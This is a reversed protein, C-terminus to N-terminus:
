RLEPECDRFLELLPSWGHVAAVEKGREAIRALLEPEQPLTGGCQRIDVLSDLHVFDPPSHEDLNTLVVAGTQMATNVSTNNARVGSGFFAAFYTCRKLYNYLGTDSIFGLFFIKEGFVEKLEEYAATFSDDLSRGEHIAASIYLCYSKGTAELLDHLQYYYDARVKHAMGFTYVSIDVDEPFPVADFLHGPCWAEVVHKHLPKLESVLAENGCYVTKSRRLLKAEVPTATWDHLFLRPELREDWHDVVEELREADPDTFESLKLSLLPRRFKGAAPDFLSLMPLNLREALAKNFRAVGCTLPNM